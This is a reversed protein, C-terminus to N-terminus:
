DEIRGVGVADGAEIAIIAVLPRTVPDLQVMIGVDLEVPLFLGANAHV